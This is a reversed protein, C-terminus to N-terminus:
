NYLCHCHCGLIGVTKKASIFIWVSVTKQKQKEAVIKNKQCCGVTLSSPLQQFCRNSPNANLYVAESFHLSRRTFFTIRILKLIKLACKRPTVTVTLRTPWNAVALFSRDGRGRIRWGALNSTAFPLTAQKRVALNSPQKKAFLCGQRERCAVKGTSIQRSRAIPPTVWKPFLHIALNEHKRKFM